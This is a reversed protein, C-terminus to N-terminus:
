SLTGTGTFTVVLWGQGNEANFKYQGTFPGTGPPKFRVTQTIFTGPDLTIGEPLPTATSFAGAPAAARSITLPINGKNDIHFTLTVSKGVAVSGVNVSRPTFALVATGTVAAGTLPVSVSGHDSTVTVFSSNAGARPPNYAVSATVSQQPALVTGVTPLGKVTFPAAPAQVGTITEAKNWSNSITFTLTKGGAGTDLTGFSVPPASLLLGPATGYGTLALTRTGATTKVSVNAVVTGATKPTFTVPIAVSQGAALAHRETAGHVSFEQNKKTLPATGPAGTSGQYGAGKNKIHTHGSVGAVNVVGAPSSVGTITIARNATVTVNETKSAGVAVRGFDVPAAELPANAKTGFAFLQGQRNAVYVIGNYATSVSFKSATGIPASWLLPLTGGSPVAGYARLAGDVGSPGDDYVVWVVASGATTGNSTVEPSGSSYGFAGASTGASSLQPVGSANVGYSLARLYGGGTSETLYVWGGEGGYAAPHGWVGNYPGLTQLTDDGGSPGQSRGGLDDRDLLFIRGDKGVQVLLDPDASTGFYQSPLAIPAGSGLDQDNQDLSPGNSPAFFDTPTLTGNSGVTLRVVSESLTAPTDAGGATAPPAVGNGTTLLIQNPGDSVLGGGSQWIGSQSDQNTGAGAEDSWFGSISHTTTSVGIVVGRYPPDDCDGSFAAYVVGGLLLLAPRQLESGDTFPVGPTNDPTGQLEVPFGATEKGTTVSLAQMWTHNVAKKGKGKQIRTTLYLTNTSPDVVGTSTNGIDPSLDGCGISSALAPSGFHRKWQVKGTTANVGYAWNKETTVIVTGNVVLPQAYVAGKLKAEFIQGFSASQVDSPSLGPENPDWGSRLSDYAATTVNPPSSAGASTAVAGITTGIVALSAAAALARRTRRRSM